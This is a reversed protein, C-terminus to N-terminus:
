PLGLAIWEAPEESGGIPVVIYQKGESMYTMPGGTVGAPLEMEWIVEGTAKDYARFKNGWMNSYIGGFVNGGDGLFLLSKTVLAVPRSSIGLPPLDLGELAPHDRLADGNAAM